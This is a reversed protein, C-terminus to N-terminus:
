GEPDGEPAPTGGGNFRKYWETRGLVLKWRRLEMCHDLKLLTTNNRTRHRSHNKYALLLRPYGRELWCEYQDKRVQVEDCTKDWRHWKDCTAQVETVLEPPTNEFTKEVKEVLARQAKEEESLCSVLLLCLCAATIPGYRM